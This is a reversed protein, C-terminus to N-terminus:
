SLAPRELRYYLPSVREPLRQVKGRHVSPKAASQWITESKPKGCNMRNAGDNRNFETNTQQISSDLSSLDHISNSIGFCTSEYFGLLGRTRDYSATICAESFPKAIGMIEPEFSVAIGHESKFSGVPLTSYCSLAVSGNSDVALVNKFVPKDYLLRETPGQYLILDDMMDIAIPEVVMDVVEGQTGARRMEIVM